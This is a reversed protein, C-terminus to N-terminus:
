MTGLSVLKWLWALEQMNAASPFISAVVIQCALCRAAGKAQSALRGDIGDNEMQLATMFGMGPMIISLESEV